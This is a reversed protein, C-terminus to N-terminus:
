LLLMMVQCSEEAMLISNFCQPTGSFCIWGLLKSVFHCLVHRRDEVSFPVGFGNNVTDIHFCRKREGMSAGVFSRKSMETRAVKCNVTSCFVISKMVKYEPFGSYPMVLLAATVLAYLSM